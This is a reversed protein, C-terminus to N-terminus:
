VLLKGVSLVIYIYIHIFSQTCRIPGRGTYICAYVCIICNSGIIMYKINIEILNNIENNHHHGKHILKKAGGRYLFIFILSLRGNTSKRLTSTEYTLKSKLRVLGIWNMRPIINIIRPETCTCTICTIHSAKTIYDKSLKM